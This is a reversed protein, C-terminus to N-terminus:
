PNVLKSNWNYSCGTLPIRGAMEAFVLAVLMHGISVLVWMWIGFPGAKGLVFGYNSIVGTLISIASFSIAFASFFGVSRRLRPQYGAEIIASDDDHHDMVMEM